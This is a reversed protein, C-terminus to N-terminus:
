NCRLCSSKQLLADDKNACGNIVINRIENDGLQEVKLTLICSFVDVYVNVRRTTNDISTQGDVICYLPELWIDGCDTYTHSIPNSCYQKCCSGLPLSESKRSALYSKHGYLTTSLTRFGINFHCSM